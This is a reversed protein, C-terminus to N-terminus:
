IFALRGLVLLLLLEEALLFFILIELLYFSFGRRGSELAEMFVEVLLILSLGYLGLGFSKERGGIEGM